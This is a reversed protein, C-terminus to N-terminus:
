IEFKLDRIIGGSESGSTAMRSDRVFRNLAKWEQWFNRAALVFINSPTSIRPFSATSYIATSRTTKFSYDNLYSTSSNTALQDRRKQGATLLAEVVRLESEKERRQNTLDILMADVADISELEELPAFPM